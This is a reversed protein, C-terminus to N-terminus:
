FTANIVQGTSLKCSGVGGGELGSDPKELAFICHMSDGKNGMLVAAANSTHGNGTFVGVDGSGAGIGIGTTSTTGVVFKGSFHEGNPLTATINGNEDWFSHHYHLQIPKGSMRGQIVGNTACGSLALLLMGASLFRCVSWLYNYHRM